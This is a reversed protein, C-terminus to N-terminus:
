LYRQADAGFLTAFEMPGSAHTTSAIDEDAEGAHAIGMGRARSPDVIRVAWEKAPKNSQIEGLSGIKHPGRAIWWSESKRFDYLLGVNSYSPHAALESM